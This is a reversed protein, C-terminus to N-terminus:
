TKYDERPFNTRAFEGYHVLVARDYARAADEATEFIGIHKPKRDVTIMVRFRGKSHAYVGKFKGHGAGNIKTTNKTNQSHTCLRLNSRRNNLGNGDIHDVEIGDGKTCGMIMRHMLVYRRDIYGIAYQTRSIKNTLAAWKHKSLMLLDDNDVVAVLGKTLQISAEGAM